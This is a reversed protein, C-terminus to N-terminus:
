EGVAEDGDYKGHDVELGSFQPPPTCIPVILVQKPPLESLVNFNLRKLIITLLKSHLEYANLM